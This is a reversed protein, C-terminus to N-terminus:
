GNKMRERAPLTRIREWFEYITLGLTNAIVEMAHLTPNAMGRELRSLYTQYFGCREAFVVQTMRAELRLLRVCRGFRQALNEKVDPVIQRISQNVYVSIRINPRRGPAGAHPATCLLSSPERGGCATPAFSTCNSCQSLPHRGSACARPV